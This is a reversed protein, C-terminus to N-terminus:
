EEYQQQPQKTQSRASSVNKAEENGPTQEQVPLAPQKTEVVVSEEERESEPAADDGGLGPRQM